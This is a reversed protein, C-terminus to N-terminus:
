GLISRSVPNSGAVRQKPLVGTIPNLFGCLPPANQRHDLSTRVRSELNLFSATM